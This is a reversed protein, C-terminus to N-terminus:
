LETHENENDDYDSPLEDSCLKTSETCIKNIVNSEGKRFIEIIPEEHEEVIEECYFKLSKNLDGDQIIDVNSIEPNMKGSPTMLNLVTLEGTSKYRARVYDSMKECINDLVDSIHVESKALPVKKKIMDGNADLRFNGIEIDQSPNIKALVNEVEEITSRCVACQLEKADIDEEQAQINDAVFVIVAILVISIRMQPTITM